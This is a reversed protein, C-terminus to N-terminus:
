AKFINISAFTEVSLIVFSLESYRFALTLLVVSIDVALKAIGIYTGTGIM